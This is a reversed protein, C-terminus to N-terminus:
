GVVCEVFLFNPHTSLRQYCEPDREKMAEAPKGESLNAVVMGAQAIAAFLETLSRRYFQVEVPQGITDWEEVILERQFYNGSPSVEFDVLPHHTSFFFQGGPKLIRRIDNFLPQLDELYHIALPCVVVDFSNDAEQPLGQGMDAAYAQLQDAFRAKVMAVFPESLDVATVQAGQALFYESYIGSGCALDLVRKGQLAPLMAQMSPRELLANYINDQVAEAYQSAFQHYMPASM